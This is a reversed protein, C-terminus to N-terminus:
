RNTLLGPSIHYNWTTFSTPDEESKIASDRTARTWLILSSLRMSHNYHTIIAEHAIGEQYVNIKVQSIKFLM